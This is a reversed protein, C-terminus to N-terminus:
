SRSRLLRCLENEKSGENASHALHILSFDNSRTENYEHFEIFNESALDPFGCWPFVRERCAAQGPDVKVFGFLDIVNVLAVGNEDLGIPRNVFGAVRDHKSTQYQIRSQSRTDHSRGIHVDDYTDDRNLDRQFGSISKGSASSLGQSREKGRLFRTSLRRYDGVYRTSVYPTTSKWDGNRFKRKSIDYLCIYTLSPLLFFDAPHRRCDRSVISDAV